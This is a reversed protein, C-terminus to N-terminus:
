PALTVLVSGPVSHICPLQKSFRFRFNNLRRPWWVIPWNSFVSHILALLANNTWCIMQYLWILTFALIGQCMCIIAHGIWQKQHSAWHRGGNKEAGNRGAAHHSGTAALLRSLQLRLETAPWCAYCVWSVNAAVGVLTSAASEEKLQSGSCRPM